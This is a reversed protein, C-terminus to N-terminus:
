VVKPHCSVHSTAFPLNLELSPKIANEKEREGVCACFPYMGLKACFPCMGLNAGSLIVSIKPNCTLSSAVLRFASFKQKITELTELRLGLKTQVILKAYDKCSPTGFKKAHDTCSRINKEYSKLMIQAHPFRKRLSRLMIQAHPFALSRLM